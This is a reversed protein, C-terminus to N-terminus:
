HDAMFEEALGSVMPNESGSAAKIVPLMEDRVTPNINTITIAALLRIYEHDDQLWPRLIPVADIALPGLKQLCHAAVVCVSRDQDNLMQIIMPWAPASRVGAEDLLSLALLRVESDADDLASVLGSILRDGYQDLQQLATHTPVWQEQHNLDVLRNLERRIENM